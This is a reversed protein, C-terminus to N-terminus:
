AFFEALLPALVAPDVQHSQGDLVQHRAHPVAQAVALSGAHLEPSTDAGTLVLTPVTIRAARERPVRADGVIAMDYALTPAIAEFQPWAPSRRMGAIAVAPVGVRTMFLEVADARRDAALLADLDRNFKAAAALDGDPENTFPPEYLALKTVPLGSAVAEMALIAGSSMGYLHASGGAETILAAIDEVERRVAYPATDGSQGRGRRDYAYVTFQPALLEALPLMGGFARHCNAGDVAILAPGHGHTEYAIKTGDASTITGM